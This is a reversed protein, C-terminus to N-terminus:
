CELTSIQSAIPDRQKQPIRPLTPHAAVQCAHLVLIMTSNRVSAVELKLGSHLFLGSGQMMCVCANCFSGDFVVKYAFLWRTNVASKDKGVMGALMEFDTATGGVSNLVDVM